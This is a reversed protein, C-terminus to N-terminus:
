QASPRTSQLLGDLLEAARQAGDTPVPPYDPTAGLQESIARALLEPTTASLAMRRGAGHRALREAVAVEQECHGEVPFYVFPRRLVTLELTATGGGQVVAADAAAFHEYLAPVYGRIEVGPPVEIVSEPLRPGCVLVLRVDPVRERLAPYSRAALELLERGIATGGIAAIVLPETGYGLRRRVAARDACAAPDFPLIYGVFRCRARAWDRRNPLWLGFPTNPIDDLEGVFLSMDVHRPKQRYGKAWAHNWFWVGLREMPRATMPQFGVFDFIMVFPFTKLAPTKKLALSIEYTEDGVILDYRQAATVRTLVEVNRSWHRMAGFAYRVLSLRAGQAAAEALSSEEVLDACEPLLREGADRLYRDAPSAALWDIAVDPRMERLTRAIALDRSVHGLGISGSIFLARQATESM